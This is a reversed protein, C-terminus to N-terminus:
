DNNVREIAIYKGGRKLWKYAITDGVCHDYKSYVCLVIEGNINSNDSEATCFYIFGKDTVRYGVIFAM